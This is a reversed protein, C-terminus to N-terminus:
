GARNEPPAAPARCGGGLLIAAYAILVPELPARYQTRFYSFLVLLAIYLLVPLAFAGHERRYYRALGVFGMLMVIGCSYVAANAGRRKEIGTAADPIPGEKTMIENANDYVADIGHELGGPGAFNDLSLGFLRAEYVPEIARTRVTNIVVFPVLVLMMALLLLARRRSALLAGPALCVLLPELLVGLAVLAGVLLARSREGIRATSAAMLAAVLFVGMSEVGVNLNYLVFDPFVACIAAAIVGATGGCLRAVAAYLLVVTLASLIGQALFLAAHNGTGFLCYIARLFLPYLPAAASGLGGELALRNYEEMEISDVPARGSFAGYVRLALALLVIGAVIGRDSGIRAAASAGGPAASEDFGAARSREGALLMSAYIILVPEIPLRYRFKFLFFLVVLVTYSLAPLALMRNRRGYLRAIGIFGLVLVPLYAYAWVYYALTGEGVIPEIVFTDWGRSFLVTVKNYVNDLAKGRNHAINALAAKLYVASSLTDSRLETSDPNIFRSGDLSPHYTEYVAVASRQFSKGVTMEFAVLPTLLVVAALAFTWRRKIGLFVGPAFLVIVPRFAFGIFIVVAALVSRTREPIAAVLVLLLVMVFFVGITETLTTLNYAILNPYVAAIGAAILGARRSAVASTVRYILFVTLASILGQVVFVANYNRAGFLAYIGRLFLPYGPPLSKPFGGKWAAANYLAMDSYGPISTCRLASYVRIVAAVALVFLLILTPSKRNM